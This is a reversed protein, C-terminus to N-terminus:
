PQQLILDFSIRSKKWLDLFNSASFSLFLLLVAVLDAFPVLVPVAIQLDTGCTKKNGESRSLAQRKRREQDEQTIITNEEGTHTEQEAKEEEEEEKEEKEEDVDDNDEDATAAADEDTESDGAVSHKQM